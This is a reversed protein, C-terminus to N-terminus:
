LLLTKEDKEKYSEVTIGKLEGHTKPSSCLYMLLPLLLVPICSLLESLGALGPPIAFQTPVYLAGPFTLLKIFGIKSTGAAIPLMIVNYLFAWALNIKVHRFTDQSVELIFLFRTLNETLLVIDAIQLSLDAATGM